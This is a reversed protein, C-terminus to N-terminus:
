HKKQPRHFVPVGGEQTKPAPFSLEPIVLFFWGDSKSEIEGIGLIETRGVRGIAALLFGPLPPPVLVGNGRRMRGRKRTSKVRRSGPSGSRRPPLFRTRGALQFSGTASRPGLVGQLFGELFGFVLYGSVRPFFFVSRVSGVWFCSCCVEPVTALDRLGGRPARLLESPGLLRRRPAAAFAAAGRRREASTRQSLRTSSGRHKNPDFSKFTGSKTNKTYFVQPNPPSRIKEPREPKGDSRYTILIPIFGSTTGKFPIPIVLSFWGVPPKQLPVM